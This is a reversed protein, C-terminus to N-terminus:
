KRRPRCLLISSFLSMLVILPLVVPAWDWIKVMSFVPAPRFYTEEFASLKSQELRGTICRAIDPSHEFFPEVSWLSDSRSSVAGDKEAVKEVSVRVRPALADRKFAAPTATSSFTSVGAFRM